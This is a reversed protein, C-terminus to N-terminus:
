SGTTVINGNSDYIIDSGDTLISNMLSEPNTTEASGGITTTGTVIMNGAVYLTNPEDVTRGLGDLNMLVTLDSVVKAKDDAAAGRGFIYSQIETSFTGFEIDWFEGFLAWGGFQVTHIEGGSVGNFYPGFALNEYLTAGDIKLRVYENIKWELRILYETASVPSWSITQNLHISQTQNWGELILSQAPLDRYLALFDGNDRYIYIIDADKLISTANPKYRVQLYGETVVHPPPTGPYAGYTGYPQGNRGTLILSNTNYNYGHGSDAHGSGNIILGEAYTIEPYNPDNSDPGPVDFVSDTHFVPTGDQFNQQYLPVDVVIVAAFLAIFLCAAGKTRM